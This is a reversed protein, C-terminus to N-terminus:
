CANPVVMNSPEPCVHIQDLLSRAPDSVCVAIVIRPFYSPCRQCAGGGGGGDCAYWGVIM